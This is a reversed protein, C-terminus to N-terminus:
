LTATVDELFSLTAVVENGEWGGWKENGITAQMALLQHMAERLRETMQIGYRSPAAESKTTCFELRFSRAHPSRYVVPLPAIPPFLPTCSKPHFAPYRKSLAIAPYRSRLAYLAPSLVLPIQILAPSPPLKCSAPPQPEKNMGSGLPRSCAPLSHPLLTYDQAPHEIHPHPCGHMGGTGKRVSCSGKDCSASEFDRPSSSQGSDIHEEHKM